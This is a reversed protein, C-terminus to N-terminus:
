IFNWRDCEDVFTIAVFVFTLAVLVCTIAVLVFTNEISPYNVAKSGSPIREIGSGITEQRLRNCYHRVWMDLNPQSIRAVRIYNRYGEVRKMGQLVFVTEWIDQEVQELRAKPM